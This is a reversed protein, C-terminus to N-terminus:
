QELVLKLKTLLILESKNKGSFADAIANATTWILKKRELNFLSPHEKKFYKFDEFCEDADLSNYDLWGFVIEIQYAADSHFEDECDDMKIWHKNVIKILAEYESKRVVKDAAAVAYFLEGIKQYFEVEPNQQKNMSIRNYSLIFICM